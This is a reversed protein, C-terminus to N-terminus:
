GSVFHRLTDWAASFDLIGLEVLSTTVTAVLVAVIPDRLSGKARASPKRKPMPGHARTAPRTKPPIYPRGARPEYQPERAPFLAIIDIAEDSQLGFRRNKSWMVEGTISLPGHRIEVRAGKAPPRDCKAMLGRSSVNGIMVDSERTGDQLRAKVVILRRPERPKHLLM